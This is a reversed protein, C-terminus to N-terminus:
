ILDLGAARLQDGQGPVVACWPSVAREGAAEAVAVAGQAGPFFQADGGGRPASCDGAQRLRAWCWRACGTLGGAPVLSLCLARPQCGTVRQAHPAAELHPKLSAWIRREQRMGRWSIVPGLLRFAGKARVQGLWRMRTGAAAPEFTLLCSFDSQAMTTTSALLTPRDYGTCEILMEATRGM